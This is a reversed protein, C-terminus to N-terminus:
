HGCLSWTVFGDQAAKEELGAYTREIRVVLRRMMVGGNVPLQTLLSGGDRRVIHPDRGQHELMRQDQKGTVRM